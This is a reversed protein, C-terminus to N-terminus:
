SSLSRAILLGADHLNIATADIRGYLFNFILGAATGIAPPLSLGTILSTGVNVYIPVKADDASALFLTRISKSSSEDLVKV